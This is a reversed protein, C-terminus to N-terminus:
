TDNRKVNESKAATRSLEEAWSLILFLQSNVLPRQHNTHRDVKRISKTNRTGNINITRNTSKVPLDSADSITLLISTNKIEGNM